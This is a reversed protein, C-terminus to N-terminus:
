RRTAGGAGALSLYLRRDVIRGIERGDLVIPLEVPVGGSSGGWGGGSASGGMSGWQAQPVVDVGAGRPIILEPGAEGVIAPQGAAAFGGSAFTPLNTIKASYIKQAATWALGQIKILAMYGAELNHLAGTADGSKKIQADLFAIAAVPGKADAQALQLNFLEQRNQAIEGTLEIWKLSNKEVHKRQEILTAINDKLQAEHGANIAKGFLGTDVAATLNDIATRAYEAASKINSLDKKLEESPPNAQTEALGLEQVANRVGILSDGHTAEAAAADLAGQQLAVLQDYMGGIIPISSGGIDKLFALLTGMKETAPATHDMATQLFDVEDALAGFADAAAPLVLSELRSLSKGLKEQANDVKALAIQEKGLDTNAFAQAQGGALKTVAALAETQTAGDKLVIGLAKLARFQGGEVKILATSAEELSIGKFRALDQATALFSTAKGVDHTAAVLKAMSNTIENDTFGLQMGAADAAKIQDTHARWAPVNANLSTTLRATAVEQERYAQVSDGVLDIVKHLAEGALGFAKSTIGASIGAQVGQSKMAGAIKGFTPSAQDIAKLILELTSKSTSV